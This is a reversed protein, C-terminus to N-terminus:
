DMRSVRHAHSVGSGGKRSIHRQWVVAIIAATLAVIHCASEATHNARSRGSAAQKEGGCVLQTNEVWSVLDGGGARKMLIPQPREIRERGLVGDLTVRALM